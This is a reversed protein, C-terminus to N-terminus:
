LGLLTEQAPHDTIVRIARRLADTDDRFHAMASNCPGCVLARVCRGCSVSGRCCSHDHDVALRKTKGNARRCIACYGGQSELIAAYADESISYTREIYKAHARAKSAKVFARHCTTCRPGPHKAVRTTSKCDKCVRKFTETM